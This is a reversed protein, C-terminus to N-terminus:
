RRTDNLAWNYDLYRVRTGPARALAAADAPGYKVIVDLIARAKASGGEARGGAHQAIFDDGYWKFISSVGLVGGTVQVGEGSALYTRGAADLQADLTRARYPELALPPCSVSACNVAFHIRADKFEPRLIRHEIDDLTVSRGAARWTLTTWVGDIQRISNRPHRTLVGSRIPYHDVIARLTFANYANIWFAMRQERNWAREGHTGVADFDAVSRDLSARNSKLRAYDVRPPTVHARLVAGYAAYGHDFPEAALSPVALCLGAFVALQRM